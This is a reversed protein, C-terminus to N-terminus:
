VDVGNQFLNLTFAHLDLFDAALSCIVCLVLRFSEVNVHVTVILIESPRNKIAKYSKSMNETGSRYNRSESIKINM